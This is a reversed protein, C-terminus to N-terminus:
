PLSLHPQMGWGTGWPCSPAPLTWCSGLGVGHCWGALQSLLAAFESCRLGPWGQGGIGSCTSDALSPPRAGRWVTDQYVLAHFLCCEFIGQQGYRRSKEELTCANWKRRCLVKPVRMTGHVVPVSPPQLLTLGHGAWPPFLARPECWSWSQRPISWCSRM